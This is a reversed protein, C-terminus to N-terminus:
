DLLKEVKKAIALEENPKVEVVKVEETFPLDKLIMSRTKPDGNGISGTFCILDVGGMAGYYASIYKKVRYTFVEMALRSKKDGKKAKNIIELMNQTGALGVMGSKKNLINDTKKLGENKVLELVIGPDIDGSRTMMAVGELPTHGMSTDVAKGNKIATVSCGGGLHASIISSDEYRLGVEDAAKKSAYEHSIGHFGFRRFGYKERIEEPLPYEYAKSPLDSYFQTDFVAIQKAKNFVEKAAKIGMLNKPNHLPALHNYEELNKIKKKDLVIEERFKEGGHVVRHGVAQPSYKRGLEKLKSRLKSKYNEDTLDTLSAEEKLKGEKFVAIM